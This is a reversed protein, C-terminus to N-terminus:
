RCASAAGGPRRCSGRASSRGRCVDKNALRPNFHRVKNREVPRHHDIWIAPVKCGDLFDQDVLAVDLIFVKDADFQEIKPLSRIDLKPHTKVVFGHGEKAYRYLLLFACLGDPDDDFFFLPNQCNDLEDKIQQYQKNTLM